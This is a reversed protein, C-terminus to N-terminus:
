ILDPMLDAIEVIFQDLCNCGLLADSVALRISCYKKLYFHLPVSDNQVHDVDWIGIVNQRFNWNSM